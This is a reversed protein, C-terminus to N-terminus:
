GFDKVLRDVLHDLQKLYREEANKVVIEVVDDDDAMQPVAVFTLKSVPFRGKMHKVVGNKVYKKVKPTAGRKRQWVILEPSYIDNIFAHRFRVANGLLNVLVGNKFHTHGQMKQSPGPHFKELGLRQGKVIAKAEMSGARANQFAWM